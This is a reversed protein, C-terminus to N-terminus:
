RKKHSEAARYQYFCCELNANYLKKTRDARGFAKSAAPYSTLFGCDWGNLSRYVRSFGRYLEFLGDEKLREGYPPNSLLLGGTQASSFHRMDATEFRIYGGVGAREAHYRAIEVARPSIDGGFLEACRVRSRVDEAEERASSLVDPVGKFRTFDFSRKAGPAIDLAYMAAEIPLTGSGCFLDAFPKGARYYCNEVLAAAVTERLPADYPLIRYGRKHLGDGSTDVTLTAVDQFVSVGVTVREGKEDFVSAGIKEKLRRLIAKKAVGGTAKVAMLKSRYCKGDMLIRSHSSLYEEWPLSFVGEFLEDFTWVPFQGLAVLVREGSRLFVNLRAVDHWDGNLSIRGHDDAKCDGYGLKKLQRKVTAELGAACPILLQM